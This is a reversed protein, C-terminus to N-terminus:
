KKLKYFIFEVQFAIGCIEPYEAPNERSFNVYNLYSISHM